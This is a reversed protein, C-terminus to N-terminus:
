FSVSSFRENRTSGIRFSIPKKRQEDQRQKLNQLVQALLEKAKRQKEPQTSEILTISRALCGRDGGILGKYLDTVTTTSLSRRAIRSIFYRPFM